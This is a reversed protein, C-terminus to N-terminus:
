SGLAGTFVALELSASFVRGMSFDNFLFHFSFCGAQGGGDWGEGGAGPVSRFIRHLGARGAHREDPGVAPRAEGRRPLIPNEM